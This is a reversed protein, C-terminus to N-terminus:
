NTNIGNIIDRVVEAWAVTIAPGGTAQEARMRHEFVFFCPVKGKLTEQKQHLLDFDKQSANQVVDGVCSLCIKREAADYEEWATRIDPTVTRTLSLLVGYNMMVRFNERTAPAAKNVEAVIVSTFRQGLEKAQTPDLMAKAVLEDAADIWRGGRWILGIDRASNVLTWENDNLYEAALAATFGGFGNADLKGNFCTEAVDGLDGAVSLNFGRAVELCQKTALQIGEKTAFERLNAPRRVVEQALRVFMSNQEELLRMAEGHEYGKISSPLREDIMTNVAEIRAGLGGYAIVEFVFAAGVLLGIVFLSLKKM